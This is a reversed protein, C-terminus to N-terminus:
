VKIVLQKLTRINVIATTVKERELGYVKCVVKKYLALQPAYKELLYEEGYVSYKYDIIDACVAKGDKYQVCLLDIAGQVIVGNGDDAGSEASGAGEKVAIYESSPLRCLFERERFLTKQAVGEFVPMQLIRVLGDVDLIGAQAPSLLGEATFREVEAAVGGREKVSFDCLELFRHYALGAEVGGTGGDDEPAFMAPAAQEGDRENLLRTASSKVPLKIGQEYGYTFEAAGKIKGYAEGVARSGDIIRRESGVNGEELREVEIHKPAFEEANFLRAYNEAGCAKIPSYGEAESTLIYLAYKARTCAVYFLNIENRLEEEACKLKCLQRLLTTYYIRNEGYYRPAFGFKEDTYIDAKDDGKYSAAIDAVIVVPFELGKSAHMTMVKICDSALSAPAAIKNGGAKIKRLFANLYLEGGSSYAEKQFRRLFQTKAESDFEAAFGETKVIEDILKAAGLSHSLTRLREARAFFTNLKSALADSKNLAYQRACLYFRPANIGIGGYIRVQALEEEDLGGLPSLLASALPIDQAGNDIYSLIDMLRIIEPRECVNVEASAAVPYKSSLARVIGQANKNSRKRTLVCIDGTQVKVERKEDANYYTSGLAKEVLKLVALGEATYGRAAAKQGSVSYVGQAKKKESSFNDFAFMEASGEFGCPYLAGGRMAHGCNYDFDCVPPTMLRSFLKNVFGIVAGASRFNDPIVIYEECDGMEMCKGSFFASRSGRFGYIAQKVDGVYFVDGGAVSSLIRDQIPNIDQYEDVFVYKYKENIQEKVQEDSLLNLAFHELDAYDAKGEERKIASYREDFKLLVDTFANALAGSALFRERETNKDNFTTLRKFKDKVDKCFATFRDDDEGKGNPKRSFALKQPVAFMDGAAAYANISERLENLVKFYGSQSKVKAFDKEFLDIASVFQACRGKVIGFLEACVEEFGEDTYTNRRASLLLSVYDPHIRMGDYARVIMERLNKDSRKKRLRSLLLYFNEDKEEYLDSFLEDIARAKLEGEEGGDALIEFGSDIKLEYFFTRALRACFSDITSIDASNLKGLQNRLRERLEVDDCNLREILGARLKDKMNAAAKKTFTVCLVEDLDAGAAIIDTLRRIMVTTKGAGASASVLVEGRADIARQQEPTFSM